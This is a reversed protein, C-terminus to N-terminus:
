CAALLKEKLREQVDPPLKRGEQAVYFVDIARRGKTDVLVIDINCSSSSFVSALSYLLGPRDEADIEVLTATPCADSDFAVRPPEGRRHPDPAGRGRMLKQADTRGLAIRQLLDRLRDAETPNLQLMRKPDAVVFTDLIVGAANSFAEAKLIDLGFSSIAGAFSAFLAPKDRAVISIRYAGEISELKAAVGTPRSQEFLQLHEQIENASHARLYRQPFGKVFAANAPLHAPVQQIRDTELERLLEHQTTSYARWLQELRWSIKDAESAAAVRAYAMMALLRLREITGVREALQRVTAPDDLDRGSMADALDSRHALQFEVMERADSPMEMRIAAARAREVAAAGMEVFLLAFVLLAVDDIEALLMAFRQREPNAAPTLEFIAEVTRLTQEDLTYRYEPTVLVSGDIASWEPLLAPMLGTAQLSRLAMAAHPSALTTKLNAWVPRPQAYWGAIAERAYELRRETEPSPAVGHWAVFELLRLLLAPDGALHGPNRLLLRERSVTFEQNSLRSRHERFNDLLSTESKEAEDIARRTENSTTRACRFYHPLVFPFKQQQLSAQSGFDLVNRDGEARYHLFCRVASLLAVAASLEAAAPQNNGNLITLWVMARADELGGPSEKVDPQAECPTNGHAAHRTRVAQCLRQCLKERNAALAAEIKTELQDFLGHDGDLLRRDLLGLAQASTREVADICEAVTQAVSNPRLGANWLLRIFEPLNDKLAELRKTSDALLVLDLESYPFTHGRGYAGAALIAVGQPFVPQVAARYAGTVAEDRLLTLAMLAASADGTALFEEKIARWKGTSDTVEETDRLPERL